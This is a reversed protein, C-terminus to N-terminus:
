LGISALLDDLDPEKARASELVAGYKLATPKMVLESSKSMKM